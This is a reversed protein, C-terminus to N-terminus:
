YGIKKIRGNAISLILSKIAVTDDVSNSLSNFKKLRLVQAKNLKISIDFARKTDTQTDQQVDVM